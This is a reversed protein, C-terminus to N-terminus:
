IEIEDQYQKKMKEAHKRQLYEIHNLAGNYRAEAELTREAQLQERLKILELLANRYAVRDPDRNVAAAEEETAQKVVLAIRKAIREADKPTADFNILTASIIAWFIAREDPKRIWELAIPVRSTGTQGSQHLGTIAASLQYSRGTEEALKSKDTELVWELKLSKDNM